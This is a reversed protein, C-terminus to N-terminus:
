ELVSRFESIDADSIAINDFIESLAVEEARFTRKILRTGARLKYSVRVDEDGRM